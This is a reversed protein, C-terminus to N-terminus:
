IVFCLTNGCASGGQQVRLYGGRVRVRVQEAQTERRETEEEAPKDREKRWDSTVTKGNHHVLSDPDIGDYKMTINAAEVPKDQVHHQTSVVATQASVASESGTEAHALFSATALPIASSASIALLSPSLTAPMAAVPAQHEQLGTASSGAVLLPLSSCTAYWAVVAPKPLALLSRGTFGM